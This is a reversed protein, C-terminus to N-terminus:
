SSKSFSPPSLPLRVQSQSFRVARRRRTQLDCSDKARHESRLRGAYTNTRLPSSVFDSPFCSECSGSSGKSNLRPHVGAAIALRVQEVLGLFRQHDMEFGEEGKHRRRTEKEEGDGAGEGEKAEDGTGEQEQWEKFVSTWIEVEEARNLVPEEEEDEEEGELARGKGKGKGKTSSKSIRIREAIVATWRKFLLDVHEATSSSHPPAQPSSSLPLPLVPPDNLTPTLPPLQEQPASSPSTSPVSAM